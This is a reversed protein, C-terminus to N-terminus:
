LLPLEYRRLEREFAEKEYSSDVVVDFCAPQAGTQLHELLIPIMEAASEEADLNGAGTGLPPMAVSELGYETLRRLGNQLARRVGAVSVSEERSRVIVHVMFQARLQGAGTIIASGVPLEGLKECQELLDTGAARELRRTAPTVPEWEASVPRLIAARESEALEGTVVHIVVAVL